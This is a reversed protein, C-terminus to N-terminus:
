VARKKRRRLAVVGGLGSLLLLGGAPLPVASVETVFTVNDFVSSGGTDPQDGIFLDFSSIGTGLIGIVIAANSSVKGSDAVATGSADFGVLQFIDLDTGSDGVLFSLSSVTFGEFFGSVSGGRPNAGFPPTAARAVNGTQGPGPAVVTAPLVQIDGNFVLGGFNNSGFGTPSDDFDVVVTSAMAASASISLAAIIALTLKEM